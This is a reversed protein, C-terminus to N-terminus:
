WALVTALAPLRVVQIAALAGATPGAVVAVDGVDRALHCGSLLTLWVRAKPSGKVM